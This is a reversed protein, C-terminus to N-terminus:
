STPKAAHLAVTEVVGSPDQLASEDRCHAPAVPYEQVSPTVGVSARESVFTVQTEGEAPSQHQADVDVAVPLQAVVTGVDVQVLPVGNVHVLVAVGTCVFGLKVQVV